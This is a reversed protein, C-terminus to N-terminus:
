FDLRGDIISGAPVSAPRSGRNELVVAGTLTVNGEFHIDGKVVLSECDVLSPIGHRFREDFMDIKGFYNADLAITITEPRGNKIRRPNVAIADQDTFV